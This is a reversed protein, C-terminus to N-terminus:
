QDVYFSRDKPLGNQRDLLHYPSYFNVLPKAYNGMHKNINALIVMIISHKPENNQGPSNWIGIGQKYNGAELRM